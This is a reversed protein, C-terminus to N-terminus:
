DTASVRDKTTYTYPDHSVSLSGPTLTSADLLLVRHQRGESPPWRGIPDASIGYGPTGLHLAPSPPLASYLRVGNVLKGMGDVPV